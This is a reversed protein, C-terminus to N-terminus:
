FAADFPATVIIEIQTTQTKMLSQLSRESINM